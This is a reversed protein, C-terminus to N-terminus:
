PHAELWDRLPKWVHAPIDYYDTGLRQGFHADLVRLLAPLHAAIDAPLVVPVGSDMNDYRVRLDHALTPHTAECAHAYALVARLAYPDHTMDLVFYDCGDHKRGPASQGDTRHVIFKRHLHGDASM